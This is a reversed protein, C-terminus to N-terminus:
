ILMKNCKGFYITMNVVNQPKNKYDLLRCPTCIKYDRASKLQM